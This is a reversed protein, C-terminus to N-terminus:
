GEDEEDVIWSLSAPAPGVAAKLKLTNLNKNFKDINRPRDFHEQANTIETTAESITEQKGKEGVYSTSVNASGCGFYHPKTDDIEETEENVKIKFRIPDGDWPAPGVPVSKLNLNKMDFKVINRPRRDFHEQDSYSVTRIPTFINASMIMMTSSATIATTFPHSLTRISSIM